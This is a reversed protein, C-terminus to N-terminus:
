RQEKTLINVFELEFLANSYVSEKTFFVNCCSSGIGLHRQREIILAPECGFVLFISLFLRWCPLNCSYQVRRFNLPSLWFQCFCAQVFHHLFIFIMNKWHFILFLFHVRKLWQLLSHETIKLKGALKWSNTIPWVTHLTQCIFYTHDFM